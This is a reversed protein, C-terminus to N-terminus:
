SRCPPARHLPPVIFNKIIPSLLECDTPDWRFPPPAQDQSPSAHLITILVHDSGMSALSRELGKVCPLLLTNAFALDIVSPRAKGSLPFRTYVGPSKLLPFGPLVALEFYTTSSSVEESSFSRLPDDLPNHINLDGVVLLPVRLDAFLSEPLVSHVRREASNISYTNVLRFSHFRFGFVPNLSSIDLSM